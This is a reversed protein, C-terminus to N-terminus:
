DRKAIVRQVSNPHWAGGHPGTIGEEALLKVIQRVSHGAKQLARIRAHARDRHEAYGIPTNVPTSSKSKKKATNVPTSPEPESTSNVPTSSLFGNVPTSPLPPYLHPEALEGNARREKMLALASPDMVPRYIEAIMREVWVMARHMVESPLTGEAMLPSGDKIPSARYSTASLRVAESAVDWIQRQLEEIETQEKVTARPALEEAKPFRARLKPYPEGHRAKSSMDQWRVCM